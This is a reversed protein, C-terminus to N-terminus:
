TGAQTITFTKGAITIKATRSTTSSNKAVSYSVSGNGLGIIVSTAVWGASNAVAWSCDNSSDSVVITGTGGAASFSKSTPSLSIACGTGPQFSIDGAWAGWTTSTKIYEGVLWMSSDVPDLASGFYDAYRAEGTDDTVTLTAQGAKLLSGRRLAGPADNALRGTFYLSAFQTPSSRAYVIGVNNAADAMISPYTLWQGKAGFISNQVVHISNPWFAVNIQVWRLASVTGGGFNMAIHQATWLSGNRYVVHPNAQTGGFLRTTPGGPQPPDPSGDCNTGRPLKGPAVSRGLLTPSTLPNDIAWVVLRCSGTTAGILYLRGNSTFHIAPSIQLATGGGPDMFNFFDTWTVPLGQVLRSKNLIRIKTYQVSPDTPSLMHGVLVVVSENVGIKSADIFETTPTSNNLTADFVYFYWSTTDLKTPNSTKSVALSLLSVCTGITCSPDITRHMASIFFRHSWPDFIVDPDSIGVNTAPLFFQYLNKSVVLAGSKQQIRVDANNVFVLSQPGAAISRDPATSSATNSGAFSHKLVIQAHSLMTGFLTLIVIWKACWM